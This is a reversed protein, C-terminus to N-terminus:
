LVSSKTIIIIFLHESPVYEVKHVPQNPKTNCLWCILNLQYTSLMSRLKNYIMQTPMVFLSISLKCVIRKLYFVNHKDIFWCTEMTIRNILQCFLHNFTNNVITMCNNVSSSVNEGWLLWNIMENPFEQVFQTFILWTQKPKTNLLRFWYNFIFPFSSFLIM